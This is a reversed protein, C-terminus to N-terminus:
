MEGSIKEVGRRFVPLDITETDRVEEPDIGLYQHVLINRM